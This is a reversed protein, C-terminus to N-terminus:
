NFDVSLIQGASPFKRLLFRRQCGHWITPMDMEGPQLIWWDKSFEPCLFDHRCVPFSSIILIPLQEPPMQWGPHSVSDAESDSDTDVIYPILTAGIPM